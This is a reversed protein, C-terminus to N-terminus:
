GSGSARSSCSERPRGAATTTRSRGPRRSRSRSPTIRRDRLDPAAPAPAVVRQALALSAIAARREM